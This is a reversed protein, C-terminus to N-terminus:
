YNDLKYYFKLRTYAWLRSFDDSRMNSKAKAVFVLDQDVETELIIVEELFKYAPLDLMKYKDSSNDIDPCGSFIIRAAKDSDVIGFHCIRKTKNIEIDPSLLEFFSGDSLLIGIKQNTYYSGSKMSLWAAGQGVNWMTEDPFHIREGYLVLM